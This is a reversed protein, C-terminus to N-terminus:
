VWNSYFPVLVGSLTGLPGKEVVVMGKFKLYPNGGYPVKGGLPGKGPAFSPETFVSYVWGNGCVDSFRLKAPYKKLKKFTAKAM